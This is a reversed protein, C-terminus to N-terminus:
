SLRGIVFRLLGTAAKWAVQRALDYGDVLLRIWFPVQARQREVSERIEEVSFPLMTFGSVTTERHRTSGARTGLLVDFLAELTNVFKEAELEAKMGLAEAFIEPPIKSRFSGACGYTTCRATEAACPLHLETRCSDCSVAQERALADHCYSCRTGAEGPTVTIKREPERSREVRHM